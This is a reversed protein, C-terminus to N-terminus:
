NENDNDERDNVFVKVDTIVADDIGYQTELENKIAKAVEEAALNIEDDFIFTLQANCIITTEKVM